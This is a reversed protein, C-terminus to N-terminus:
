ASKTSGEEIGGSAETLLQRIRAVLVQNDYPKGLIFIKGETEYPMAEWHGEVAAATLLIIPIHMTSANARLEQYTTIGDKEPMLMDLLILDFTQTKVADLGAQGSEALTVEYGEKILRVQVVERFSPNDDIVLIRKRQTM